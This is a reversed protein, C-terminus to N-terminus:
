LRLELGEGWVDIKYYDQEWVRRTCYCFIMYMNILLKTITVYTHGRGERTEGGGVGERTEGGVRGKKTEGGGRGERTEGGGRGERTEGGGRGESTEGGGRRGMGEGRGRRGMEWVSQTILPSLHEDVLSQLRAALLLPVHHGDDRADRAGPLRPEQVPQEVSLWWIEVAARTDSLLRKSAQELVDATYGEAGPLQERM